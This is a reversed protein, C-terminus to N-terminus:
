KSIKPEQCAYPTAPFLPLSEEETKMKLQNETKMKSHRRYCVLITSKRGKKRKEANDQLASKVKALIKRLKEREKDKSQCLTKREKIEPVEKVDATETKNEADSNSGLVAAIVGEM